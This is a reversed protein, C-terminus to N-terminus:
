SGNLTKLYKAIRINALEVYKQDIEYGIFKRESQISAIATSGSGIFPDLIVEDKFSYLDIIKRPLEIPFPAPHGIKKASETPIVWVSKTLELFDDRTISTGRKKPNDRKYNSKSFVLIYEHTDRLTPNSPSLWSGWATSGGSSAGKSWIIEGRMIFGIEILLKSLLGNLHIYPKRGINAINIVIRGGKVLVRYSETFVKRLMELYEELSLDQDYEKGVNYPPSTVILHISADPLESMSESSKNIISNLYSEDISNEFYPEVSYDHPKSNIKQEYFISANHNSRSSVGFKSTKSGSKRRKSEKEANNNKL